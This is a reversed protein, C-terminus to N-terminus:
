PVTLPVETVAGPQVTIAATREIPPGYRQRAISTSDPDREQRIPTWSPLWVVVEVPGAPVQEFTFHGAADTLTVYPHETVLVDASAWYLGTGSSLEVRGLQPLTRQVPSNPEPLPLSFFAAGRGRLVHYVPETSRVTIRDGRRVFGVRSRRDGQVVTIRGEGLEVQVPPLDWPRAQAPDIGRLLVVADAVARTHTDIHPRNPNEATRFAFGPGDDRPVGYLFGPPNPIAGTWSVQGRVRGVRTADFATGAVPLPDAPTTAPGEGPADSQCGTALLVLLPWLRCLNTPQTLRNRSSDM